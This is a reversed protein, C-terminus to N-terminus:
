LIVIVYFINLLKTKNITLLKDRASQLHNSCLIVVNFDSTTKHRKLVTPHRPSSVCKYFNTSANQRYSICSVFM